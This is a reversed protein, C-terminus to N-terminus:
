VQHAMQSGLQEEKGRSTDFLFNKLRETDAAAPKKKGFVGVNERANEEDVFESYKTPKSAHEIEDPIFMVGGSASACAKM